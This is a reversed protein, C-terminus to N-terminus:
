PKSFGKRLSEAEAHAALARAQTVLRRWRMVRYRVPLKHNALRKEELRLVRV